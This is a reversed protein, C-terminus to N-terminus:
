CTIKINIRQGDYVKYWGASFTQLTVGLRINRGTCGSSVRFGDADEGYATSDSGIAVYKVSTPPDGWQFTVPLTRNSDGRNSVKGCLPGTCDGQASLSSEKFDHEVLTTVGEVSTVLYPTLDEKEAGAQTPPMQTGCSALLTCCILVAYLQKM